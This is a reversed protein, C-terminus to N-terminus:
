TCSVCCGFLMSAREHGYHQWLGVAARRARWPSGCVGSRTRYKLRQYRYQSWEPVDHTSACRIFPHPSSADFPLRSPHHVVSCPHEIARDRGLPPRQECPCLPTM